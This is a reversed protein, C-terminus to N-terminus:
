LDYQNAYDFDRVLKYILIDRCTKVYEIMVICTEIKMVNGLHHPKTQLRDIM